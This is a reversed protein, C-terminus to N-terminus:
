FARIECNWHSQQALCVAKLRKKHCFRGHTSSRQTLPASAAGTPSPSGLGKGSTEWRPALAPYGRFMEWM